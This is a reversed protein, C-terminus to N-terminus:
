YQAGRLARLSCRSGRLAECCPVTSRRATVFELFARIKWLRWLPVRGKSPLGAAELIARAASSMMKEVAGAVVRNLQHSKTRKAQGPRPHLIKGNKQGCARRVAAM